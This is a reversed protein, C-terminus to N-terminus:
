GRGTPLMRSLTEGQEEREVIAQHLRRLRDLAGQDGASVADALQVFLREVRAEVATPTTNMTTAIAKITRGAAVLGLLEDDEPSLGGTRRVPNM